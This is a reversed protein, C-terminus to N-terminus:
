QYGISDREFLRPSAAGRRSEARTNPQERHFPATPIRKNVENPEQGHRRHKDQTDSKRCRRKGLSGLAIPLLSVSEHTGSRPVFRNGSVTFRQFKSRVVGLRVVVQSYRESVFACGPLGQ